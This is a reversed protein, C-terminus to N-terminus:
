YDNYNITYLKDYEKEKDKLTGDFTSIKIDVKKFFLINTDFEV